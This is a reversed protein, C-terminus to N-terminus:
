AAAEISSSAEILAAELIDLGEDLIEPPTNLPALVRIVNRDPGAGVLVLGKKLALQMARGALEGDPERTDRDKVIEIAVMAGLGRFDGICTLDPNTAM